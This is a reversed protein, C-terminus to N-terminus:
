FSVKIYRSGSADICESDGDVDILYQRNLDTATVENTAGVNPDIGIKDVGVHTQIHLYITSNDGWIAYSIGPPEPLLIHGIEHALVSLPAGGPVGPLGFQAVRTNIWISPAYYDTPPYNYTYSLGNAGRWQDQGNADVQILRPLLFVPVTDPAHVVDYYTDFLTQGDVYPEEDGIADVADLRFGSDNVLPFATASMAGSNDTKVITLGCPDEHGCYFPFGTNRDTEWCLMRNSGWVQQAVPLNFTGLVTLSSPHYVERFNASFRGDSTTVAGACAQLLLLTGCVAGVCNSAHVRQVWRFLTNTM